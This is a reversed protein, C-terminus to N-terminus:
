PWFCLYCDFFLPQLSILCISNGLEHVQLMNVSKIEDELNVSLFM